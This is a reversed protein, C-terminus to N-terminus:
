KGLFPLHINRAIWIVFLPIAAGLLFGALIQSPTHVGILLRSYGLLSGLLVFNFMMLARLPTLKKEKGYLWSLMIALFAGSAAHGSPFAYSTLVVLADEPRPVAFILKMAWVAATTAILATSLVVADKKKKKYLLICVLIASVIWIAISPTYTHVFLGLQSHTLYM